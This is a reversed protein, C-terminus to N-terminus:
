RYQFKSYTNVLWIVIWVILPPLEGVALRQCGCTTSKKTVCCAKTARYIQLLHSFNFIHFCRLGNGSSLNYVRGFQFIQLRCNWIQCFHFFTIWVPLFVSHSFSFNSTVLLKEKEWLTKLLSTEWPRWFTDNHPFPNVGHWQKIALATKCHKFTLTYLFLWKKVSRGQYSPKNKPTWNFLM